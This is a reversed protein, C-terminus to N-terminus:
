NKESLSMIMAGLTLQRLLRDKLGTGFDLIESAQRFQTPKDPAKFGRLWAQFLRIPHSRNAALWRLGSFAIQELESFDNGFPWEPLDKQYRKIRAQLQEPTNNQCWDEPHWSPDLKGARQAQHMLQHQFRADSIQILAQIVEEDTKGRLDAIGYETIVIDRLHRPITIYPYEWVINSEPGSSGERVARLMLISRGRELAHAMAVFNYQGGVGSIVQGDSLGDSVAAGLLTMKMCTNLFRSELRQVRDIAEGEYLQNIRSVRCMAFLRRIDDSMNNLQDYFWRSGLFFAAHLVRGHNLETGLLPQWQESNKVCQSPDAKVRYSDITLYDNALTVGAKLVGWHALWEVDQATLPKSILGSEFLNLINQVSNHETVRGKNIQEQLQIDDYVRRKLIGAHYLHVFGDLFMESAAYLGKEFPALGGWNTTMAQDHDYELARILHHYHSNNEQRLILANCLADGLSGIGIQLTGGDRILTSAHLGIAHDAASVIGRPIAYTKHYLEPKDIIIDFLDGNVLADGEMFPLDPNVMAITFCRQGTLKLRDLLDLTVDPNCSLSYEIGHDTERAAVMHCIVNVGRSQMDRAVHTYNSSIYHRQGFPKHLMSAPQLYFETLSINPPMKGQRQPALYDLQPYNEGFHRQAFAKIFRGRLDKGAKPIALSLATFLQLKIQPHQCAYQYFANLVPNPKGIGLPAGVVLNSGVVDIATKVADFLLAEISHSKSQEM